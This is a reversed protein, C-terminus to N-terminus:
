SKGKPENKSSLASSSHQVIAEPLKEAESQLCSYIYIQYQEYNSNEYHNSVRWDKSVPYAKQKPPWNTMM